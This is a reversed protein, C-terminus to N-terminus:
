EFEILDNDPDPLTNDDVQVEIDGGNCIDFEGDDEPQRRVIKTHDNQIMTIKRKKVAIEHEHLNDAKYPIGLAQVNTQECNLVKREDKVKLLYFDHNDDRGSFSNSEGALIFYGDAAAMTWSFDALEKGFTKSYRLNGAENLRILFVDENTVLENFSNSFGAIVYGDDLKAIAKPEEAKPGGFTKAQTIEGEVDMKLFLVEREKVGYSETSGVLIFTSDTDLILDDQNDNLTDGLIKTWILNGRIDLKVLLIDWDDDGFSDTEGALIFGDNVQIVSNAYDVTDAGILRSWEANGQGDTKLFFMDHDWADFSNTEGVVAFGGDDTQIIDLGFENFKGGYTKAWQMNGDADLKTILVDKRGAGHGSADGVLAVGGDSTAVMNVATEVKKSGYVYSWLKNGEIDTKVVFIEKSNDFSTTVGSTIINGDTTIVTAYAVDRGLGGFTKQFTQQCKVTFSLYFVSFIILISRMTRLLDFVVTM